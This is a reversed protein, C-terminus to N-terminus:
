QNENSKMAKENLLPPPCACPVVARGCGLQFVLWCFREEECACVAECRLADCRLRMAVCRLRLADCRLRVSDSKGTLASSM